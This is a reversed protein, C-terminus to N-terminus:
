SLEEKEKGKDEDEWVFFGNSAYKKGDIMIEELSYSQKAFLSYVSTFYDTSRISGHVPIRQLITRDRLLANYYFYYISAANNNITSEADGYCVPRLQANFSSTYNADYTYGTSIFGTKGNSTKGIAIVAGKSQVNGTIAGECFCAGGSFRYASGIGNSSFSTTFAQPTGYYLSFTTLNNSSGNKAEFIVHGEKDKCIVKTPSSADDLEVSAFFEPVMPLLFDRMKEPTNPTENPIYM